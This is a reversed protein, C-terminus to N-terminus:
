KLKKMMYKLVCMGNKDCSFQYINQVSYYFFENMLEM